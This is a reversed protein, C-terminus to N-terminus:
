VEKTVICRSMKTKAKGGGSRTTQQLKYFLNFIDKKSITEM